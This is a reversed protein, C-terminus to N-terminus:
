RSGKTVTLTSVPTPNLANARTGTDGWTGATIAADREAILTTFTATTLRDLRLQWEVGTGEPKTSGLYVTYPAAVGDYLDVKGDLYCRGAVCISLAVVTATATADAASVAFEADFPWPVTSHDAPSVIGTKVAASSAPAEVTRSPATSPTAQVTAASAPESEDDPLVLITTVAIAIVGVAAAALAWSKRSTAAPEAPIGPFVAPSAISAPSPAPAAPAPQDSGLYALARVVAPHEPGLAAPGFAAVRAHNTRAVHRNALEEAVVALDHALLLGLPDADELRHGIELAEELVRRASMPDDARMHIGALQRMTSLLETDAQALQARGIEIARELLAQAGQLNGAAALTEAHQRAQALAPSDPM